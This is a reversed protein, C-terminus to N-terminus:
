ALPPARGRTAATRWAIAPATLGPLALLVSTSPPPPAVIAAPPAAVDDVLYAQGDASQEGVSLVTGDAEAAVHTGDADLRQAGARLVGGRTMRAVLSRDNREDVLAMAAQAFAISLILGLSLRSALRLPSLRM